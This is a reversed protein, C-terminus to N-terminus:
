LEQCVDEAHGRFDATRDWRVQLKPIPIRVSLETSLVMSLRLAVDHTVGTKRRPVFDDAKGVPNWQYRRAHWRSVKPVWKDRPESNYSQCLFPRRELVGRKFSAGAEVSACVGGTPKLLPIM